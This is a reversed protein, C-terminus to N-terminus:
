LIAKLYEDHLMLAIENNISFDERNMRRIQMHLKKLVTWKHDRIMELTKVAVDASMHGCRYNRKTEREQKDMYLYEEVTDNLRANLYSEKDVYVVGMVLYGRDKLCQITLLREAVRRLNEDPLFFETTMDDLEKNYFKYIMYDGRTM